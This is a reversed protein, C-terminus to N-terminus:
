KQLGLGFTVYNVAANLVSFCFVNVSSFSCSFINKPFKQKFNAGTIKAITKRRTQWKAKDLYQFHIMTIMLKTGWAQRSVLSMEPTGNREQESTTLADRGESERWGSLWTSSGRYIYRGELWLERIRQQADYGELRRNTQSGAKAGHDQNGRM